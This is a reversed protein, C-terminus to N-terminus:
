PLFSGIMTGPSPSLGASLLLINTRERGLEEQAVPSRGALGYRQLIEPLLEGILQPGVADAVVRARNSSQDRLVRVM